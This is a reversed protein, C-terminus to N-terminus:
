NATMGTFVSTPVYLANSMDVTSTVDSKLTGATNVAYINIGDTLYVGGANTNGAPVTILTKFAAFNTPLPATASTYGTTPFGTIIKAIDPSCGTVLGPAPGVIPDCTGNIYNSQGTTSGLLYFYNSGGDNIIQNYAEVEPTPIYGVGTISRYIGRQGSAYPSVGYFANSLSQAATYFTAAAASQLAVASTATAAAATASTSADVVSRVADGYTPLAALLSVSDLNPLNALAGCASVPSPAPAVQGGVRVLQGGSLPSATFLSNYSFPNGAIQTVYAPNYNAQNKKIQGGKTRLRRTKIKTQRKKGSKRLLSM